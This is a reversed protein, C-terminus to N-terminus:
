DQLQQSRWRLYTFRLQFIVLVTLMNYVMFTLFPADYIAWIAVLLVLFHILVAWQWAQLRLLQLYEDERKTRAFSLLLLGIICLTLALEDTLNQNTLFKNSTQPLQLLGWNWDFYLYLIGLIVGPVLLVIGWIGAKPPLSFIPKMPLFNNVLLVTHMVNHYFSWVNNILKLM